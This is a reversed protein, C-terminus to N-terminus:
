EVKRKETDSDSRRLSFDKLFRMYFREFNMEKNKISKRNQNEQSKQAFGM